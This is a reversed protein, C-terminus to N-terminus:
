LLQNIRDLLNLLGAIAGPGDLLRVVACLLNGLLNGSGPQARIALEVPALDVQLGLLDLFVGGPIELFLIQCAGGGGGNGGAGLLDIVVDTFGQTIETVNGLADTATGVLSGSAVLAGDVLGLNTINLVGEFTGGDDLDGVVALDSLAGGRDPGRQHGAAHNFQAGATMVDMEAVPGVPERDCGAAVLVVAVATLIRRTM